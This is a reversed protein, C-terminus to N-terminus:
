FLERLKKIFGAMEERAKSLSEIYGNAMYSIILWKGSKTQIIGSMSSNNQMSGTKIFVFGSDQRFYNKLTGEGGTPLIKSIRNIGFQMISKQIIMGLSSPTILNYRSLGSGDVWQPKQPLSEMSGHLMWKIEATEDFKKSHSYAAMLLLQEALFNDSQQMMRQLVDDTSSSMICFPTNITSDYRCAITRHLSDALLQIAQTLDFHAPYRKPFNISSTDPAPPFGPPVTNNNSTFNWISNGYIPLVSRELMFNETADDWAWGPGYKKPLSYPLLFCIPKQSNRLFSFVPQVSFYPHLLLPDGTPRIYLTDKENNYFCGPLSDGFTELVTLMTLWKMNSAPVFNKEAHQTYLVRKSDLDYVFIGVQANGFVSDFHPSSNFRYLKQAPTCSSFVSLLFLSIGGIGSILPSLMGKRPAYGDKPYKTEAPM